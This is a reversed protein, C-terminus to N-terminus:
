NNNENYDINYIDTKKWAELFSEKGGKLVSTWMSIVDFVLSDTKNTLECNIIYDIESVEKMLIKDWCLHDKIKKITYGITSSSYTGKKNKSYGLTKAIDTRNVRIHKDMMYAIIHRIKVFRYGQEGRAVAENFESISFDYYECIINKVLGFHLNTCILDRQDKVSLWNRPKAFGKRHFAKGVAAGSIGLDRGISDMSEGVLYRGYAKDFKSNRHAAM